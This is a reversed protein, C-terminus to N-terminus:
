NKEPCISALADSLEIPSFSIENGTTTTLTQVATASPNAPGFLNALSSPAEISNSPSSLSTTNRRPSLQEFLSNLPPSYLASSSSRPTFLENMEQSITDFNIPTVGTHGESRPSMADFSIDAFDLPSDELRWKSSDNGAVELSFIHKSKGGRTPGCCQTITWEAESSGVPTKQSLTLYLDVTKPTGRLATAGDSELLNRSTGRKMGVAFRSSVKRLTLNLQVFPDLDFSYEAELRTTSGNPLKGEVEVKGKSAVHEIAGVLSDASRAERSIERNQTAPTLVQKIHFQQGDQHVLARNVFQEIPDNLVFSM